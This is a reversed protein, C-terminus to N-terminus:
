KTIAALRRYSEVVQIWIDSFLRATQTVATIQWATIQSSTHAHRNIHVLVSQFTLCHAKQTSEQFTVTRAKAKPFDLVAASLNINKVTDNQTSLVCPM